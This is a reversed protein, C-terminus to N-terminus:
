QLKEEIASFTTVTEEEHLNRQWDKPLTVKAIAQSSSLCDEIERIGVFGIIEGRVIIKLSKGTKSQTVSGVLNFKDSNM